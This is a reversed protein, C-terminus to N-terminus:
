RATGGPPRGTLVFALLSAMILEWTGEVWPYVVSWVLVDQRVGPQQPQRLQVLVVAGPGVPGAAAGPHHRTKRGKPVTM